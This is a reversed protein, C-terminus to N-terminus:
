VGHHKSLDLILLFLGEGRASLMMHGTRGEVVNFIGGVEAFDIRGRGSLPLFPFPGELGEWALQVEVGETLAYYVADLRFDKPKPTFDDLTLLLDWEIPGHGVVQVAANKTGDHTLKVQTLM